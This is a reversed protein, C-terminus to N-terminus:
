FLFGGEREGSQPFAKSMDYLKTKARFPRCILLGPYLSAAGPTQFRFILGDTLSHNEFCFRGFSPFCNEKLFSYILFASYSILFMSPSTRCKM